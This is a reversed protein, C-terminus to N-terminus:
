GGYETEVALVFVFLNLELGDKGHVVIFYFPEFGEIHVIDFNYELACGGDVEGIEVM